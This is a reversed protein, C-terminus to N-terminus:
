IPTPLPLFMSGTILTIIVEDLVEIVNYSGDECKKVNMNLLQIQCQSSPNFFSHPFAISPNLSHHQPIKQSKHGIKM